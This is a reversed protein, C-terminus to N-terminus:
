APVEELLVKKAEDIGIKIAEMNMDHLKPDKEYYKEFQKRLARDVHEVSIVKTLGIVFGLVLMNFTRPTLRERAIATAPIGYIRKTITDPKEFLSSDYILISEETMYPEVRKVSRESLCIILDSEDFRPSAVPKDSIVVFAISVGGRMEVGYNPIYTSYLGESVACFALIDGVAQLGQGGEGALTIQWTKKDKWM